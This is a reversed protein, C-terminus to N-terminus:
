LSYIILCLNLYNGIVPVRCWWAVINFLKLNESVIKFRDIFLSLSLLDLSIVLKYFDIFIERKIGINM